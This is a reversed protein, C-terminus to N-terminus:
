RWGGGVRALFKEVLDPLATIDVPKAIFGSCGAALARNRDDDFVSASLAVIPTRALRVDQRLHEAAELGDIAGPLRIDMLVLDPVLEEVASLAEEGSAAEVILFGARELVKRVLLRVDANDDVVLIKAKKADSM